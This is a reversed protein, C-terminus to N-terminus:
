QSGSIKALELRQGVLEAQHRIGQDFQMRGALRERQGQRAHDLRRYAGPLRRRDLQSKLRRCGNQVQLRSKVVEIRIIRLQSDPCGPQRLPKFTHTVAAFGLWKLGPHFLKIAVDAVLLGHATHHALQADGQTLKFLRQVQKESIGLFLSHQSRHRPLERLHPTHQGNQSKILGRVGHQAHAVTDFLHQHSFNILM